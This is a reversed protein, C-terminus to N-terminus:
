NNELRYTWSYTIAKLVGKLRNWLPRDLSRKSHRRVQPNQSNDLNWCILPLYGCVSSSNTIMLLTTRTVVVVIFGGYQDFWAHFIEQLCKGKSLAQQDPSFHSIILVSKWGNYNVASTSSSQRQTHSFSQSPSSDLVYNKLRHRLKSFHLPTKYWANANRSM